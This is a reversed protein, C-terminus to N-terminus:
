PKQETKTEAKKARKAIEADVFTRDEPSLANGDEDLYGVGMVLRGTDVKKGSPTTVILDNRETKPKEATM